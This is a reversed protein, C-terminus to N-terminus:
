NLPAFNFEYKVIDVAIAPTMSRIGEISSIREFLAPLENQDRLSLFVDLAHGGTMLHAAFIEPMAALDEGVAMATRGGIKVRLQILIDYGHAAFDAVAVVRLANSEELRRIRTSVTAPALQLKRAIQRNSARGDRKLLAIISRDIDDFPVKKKTTTM